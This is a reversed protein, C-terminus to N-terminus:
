RAAADIAERVVRAAWAARARPLSAFGVLLGNRRAAGRYFGSLSAPSVGRLRAAEVVAVDGPGGELDLTLNIGTEPREVRARDGLASELADALADRRDRYLTRMRRLHGAMHGDDLFRALIVQADLAPQRDFHGRLRVLPGALPSPAVIFGIRLAPALAPM